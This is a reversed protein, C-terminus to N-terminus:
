APGALGRVVVSPSGAPRLDVVQSVDLDACPWFLDGPRPDCPGLEGSAAPTALVCLLAFALVLCGLLGVLFGCASGVARLLPSRTNTM